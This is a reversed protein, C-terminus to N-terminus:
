FKNARFLTYNKWKGNTSDKIQLTWKRDGCMVELISMVRESNNNNNNNNYSTNMEMSITLQKLSKMANLLSFNNKREENTTEPSCINSSITLKQLSTLLSIHKFSNTTLLECDLLNLIRLKSLFHIDQLDEDKLLVKKLHMGYLHPLTKWLSNMKSQEYTELGTLCLMGLDDLNLVTSDDTNNNNNNNNNNHTKLLCNETLEECNTLSLRELKHKSLIKRMMEDDINVYSLALWKLNQMCFLSSWDRLTTDNVRLEQAFKLNGLITDMIIEMNNGRIHVERLKQADFHRLFKAYPVCFKRILDGNYGLDPVMSYFSSNFRHTRAYRLNRLYEDDYNLMGCWHWSISVDRWLLHKVATHHKKSCRALSQVDYEDCYRLIEHFLEPPLDM